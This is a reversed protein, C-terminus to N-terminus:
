SLKELAVFAAMPRVARSPSSPRLCLASLAAELPSALARAPGLRSLLREGPMWGEGWIEMTTIRTNPVSALRERLAQDDYHREFFVRESAVQKREYVPRDVYTERYGTDYPVTFVIPGGPRVIRVLEQIAATDGRDPIHELVSISFAGDFSEDPFTLARGDQVEAHVRGPGDGLRDIARAYRRCLDITEPLIDTAVVSFGRDRALYLALDKPSGLDFVRAGSPLPLHRCAFAFEATRWYSAPLVLRKLGLIPERWVARAGTRIGAAWQGRATTLDAAM